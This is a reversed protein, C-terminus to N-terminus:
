PPKASATPGRSRSRTRRASTSSCGHPARPTEAASNAAAPEITFELGKEPMTLETRSVATTPLPLALTSRGAEHTVKGYVTADLTYSAKEPLSDPLRGRRPYIRRRNRRRSRWGPPVLELRSWGEKLAEFALKGQLHRRRRHGQRHLPGVGARGPGAAGERRALGAPQAIGCTSFSATRCFSARSRDRSFRSWSRSHSTSKRSRRSSARRRLPRSPCPADLGAPPAPTAAPVPAPAQASAASAAAAFLWFRTVRLLVSFRRRDPQPDSKNM